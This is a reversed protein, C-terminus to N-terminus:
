VLGRKRQDEVTIRVQEELCASLPVGAALLSGVDFPQDVTLTRVRGRGLVQPVGLVSLADNAGAVINAVRRPIRLRPPKVGLAACIARHIRRVSYREPDALPHIGPPVKGEVSAVVAHAVNRLSALPFTNDGSGIPRFVGRATARVWGLFNYREGPGIITPPRLIIPRFSSSSIRGCLAVEM